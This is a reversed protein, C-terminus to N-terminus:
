YEDDEKAQQRALDLLGEMMYVTITKNLIDTSLIVDDIVPLPIEGKETQMVWVDNAPMIWVDSIVGLHEGSNNIVSCGIIESIYYHENKRLIYNEDVFIGTEILSKIDSSEVGKL